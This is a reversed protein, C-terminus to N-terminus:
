ARGVWRFLSPDGAQMVYTVTGPQGDPYKAELTALELDGENEDVMVSLQPVTFVPALRLPTTTPPPVTEKTMTTM